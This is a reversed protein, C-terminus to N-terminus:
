ISKLRYVRVKLMEDHKVLELNNLYSPITTKTCDDGAAEDCYFHFYYDIEFQKLIQYHTSDPSNKKFEGYYYARENFAILGMQDYRNNSTIKKGKLDFEQAIEESFTFLYKNAGIYNKTYNFLMVPSKLFSICVVLLIVIKLWQKGNIYKELIKDAILFVFFLLLFYAPWIYREEIFILFYGLIYVWIASNLTFYHQDKRFVWFGYIAFFLIGFSFYSFYRFMYKLVEWNYKWVGIQYEFDAKTKFPNRAEVPYYTPDEWAFIAETDFPAVLSTEYAFHPKYGDPSIYWSNYRSSSNLTLKGYKVSLFTAWVGLILLFVFTTKAFFLLSRSNVKREIFFQYLLVLVFHAFFFPLFFNKCFFATAAIIGLIIPNRSESIFYYLYLMWCFVMLFDPTTSELGFYVLFVPLIPILAVKTIESVKFKELFRYFLLLIAIGAIINIAKFSYHPNAGVWFFPILLWSILPSWYANLANWFYGESYKRAINLYAEYDITIFPFYVTSAWIAVTIFLLLVATKFAILKQNGFLLKKAKSTYM